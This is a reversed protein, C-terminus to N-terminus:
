FNAGDATADSGKASSEAFRPAKLPSGSVGYVQLVKEKTEENKRKM